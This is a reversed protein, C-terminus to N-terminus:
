MLGMDKFNTRYKTSNLLKVPRPVAKSSKKIVRISEECMGYGPNNECQVDAISGDRAVIFKARVIYKEIKAGKRVFNTTNLYKIIFKRWETNSDAYNGKVDVTVRRNSDIKIEIIAQSFTKNIIFFIMFILLFLKM